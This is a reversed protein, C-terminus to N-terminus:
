SVTKLNETFDRGNGKYFKYERYETQKRNQGIEQIGQYKSSNETEGGGKGIEPMGEPELLLMNKGM